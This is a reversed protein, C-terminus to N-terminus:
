ILLETCPPLINLISKKNQLIQLLPLKL